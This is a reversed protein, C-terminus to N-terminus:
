SRSEGLTVEVEFPQANRVGKILVTEGPQYNFLANIFSHTEDLPVDGIQTLFDGQVLGVLGAPSDQEVFTLYIGWQVPLQYAAALDPTISQWRIGLYPRSFFGKEIIQEAVARATNIPISFGLGEAPAGSESSRVVLTNIGVVEGALNVLPGGSNGSNIAADTQILDEILYGEGTDIMRGTASVVGVTVSNKFDGLPSGIAIVSEGPKLLDSNGLVAASPAQGKTKLVALDAYLDTGILAAPSQEGDAFIVNLGTASEVVHNNTLIYGQESVIVGSGSVTQDPTWGFMTQQGPVTGIVTVVASGVREVAQIITTQVDTTSVQIHSDVTPTIKQAQATPVPAALAQAQEQNFNRSVITGGVIAGLFGSICTLVLIVLISTIIRPPKMRSSQDVGDDM